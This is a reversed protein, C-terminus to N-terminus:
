DPAPVFEIIVPTLNILPGDGYFRQWNIVEQVSDGVYYLYTQTAERSEITGSSADFRTARISWYSERPRLQSRLTDLDRDAQLLISSLSELAKTTPESAM